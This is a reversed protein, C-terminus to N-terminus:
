IEREADKALAEYEAAIALLDDRISWDWERIAKARLAEAEERYETAREAGSQMVFRQLHVPAELNCVTQPTITIKNSNSAFRLAARRPM